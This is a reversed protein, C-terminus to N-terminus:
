PPATFRTCSALLDRYLAIQGALVPEDSTFGPPLEPGIIVLKTMARTISVNLREPQFFFGAVAALYNLDGTALSVIVVEREQGQMREVTDAVVKRANAAGFRQALLNRIARGQARYPTVIGVQELALGGAQAAQCLDVVLTADQVNRARARADATAIFIASQPAALVAAAFSPEAAPNLQLTRQQNPGAAKLQGHYFTRSPWAALWQNMRYTQRLMVSDENLATLRSFVSVAGDLISTSLVVPPLQRQDGIFVFRQGCRMAMLALPLTIQSAEDFLITDFECKELRATCTAFPTAGVVYGGAAPRTEWQDFREAREVRPDLARLQNISGIKVVSVGLAAIKGLANNIATHTHSTILVREGRQAMLAAALALVRTKGTGPPGQICAVHHASFAKAVAEAQHRNLGQDLALQYAFEDDLPDFRLAIEGELLPLLIRTGRESHAIESLAQAFMPTLDVNDEEAYSVGSGFETLVHGANKSRLLWGEEDESEFVLQRALPAAFASGRHLCLQDGERFRSEGKGPIARLLHGQPGAMLSTFQQAAGSLLKERLPREWGELHRAVAIDREKYM